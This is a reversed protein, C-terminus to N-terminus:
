GEQITDDHAGDPAWTAVYTHGVAHEDTRTCALDGDFPGTHPCTM